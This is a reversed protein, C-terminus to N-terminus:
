LVHIPNTLIHMLAWEVTCICVKIHEEYQKIKNQTQVKEAQLEEITRQHEQKAAIHLLSSVRM